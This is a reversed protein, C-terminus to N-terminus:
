LAAERSSPLLFNKGVQLAAMLVVFLTTHEAAALARSRDVTDASLRLPVEAGRIKCAFSFTLCARKCCSIIELSCVVAPLAPHSVQMCLAQRYTFVDPRPRDAPLELLPPAGSLSDQWYGLQRRWM